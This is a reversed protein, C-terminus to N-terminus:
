TLGSLLSEAEAVGKEFHDGVGFRVELRRVIKNQAPVRRGTADGRSRELRNRVREGELAIGAKVVLEAHLPARLRFVEGQEWVHGARVLISEALGADRRNM